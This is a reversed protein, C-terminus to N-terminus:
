THLLEVLTTTDINGGSVVCVIRRGREQAESRAGLAVALPAAGAGEAVIRAREVLLRVANGVDALPAVRAGSLVTQLLPWMEALVGRGGIGDVFSPTREVVVPAGNAFAATLPTSTAVECGYVRAEPALARVATAIGTVLGGGGFPVLVEDVDPLDEVIELGITGNGAIVARDAVPPIFAGRM